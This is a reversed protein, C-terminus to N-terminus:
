LNSRLLEMLKRGDEATGQALTKGGGGRGGIKGAAEKFLAGANLDSEVSVAFLVAGDAFALYAARGSRTFGQAEARVEDSIAAVETAMVRRGRPNTETQAYADVGRQEAASIRLKTLAKEATALRSQAERVSVPVLDLGVSYVRAAASLATFDARASSGLGPRWM